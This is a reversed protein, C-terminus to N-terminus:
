PSRRSPPCLLFSVSKSVEKQPVPPDQCQGLDSEPCQWGWIWVPVLWAGPSNWWSPCHPRQCLSQLKSALCACSSGNWPRSTPLRVRFQLEGERVFHSWWGGTAGLHWDPLILIMLSVERLDLHRPRVRLFKSEVHPPPSPLYPPIVYSAIQTRLFAEWSVAPRPSRHQHGRLDAFSSCGQEHLSFPRGRTGPLKTLSCCLVGSWLMQDKNLWPLVQSSRSCMRLSWLSRWGRQWPLPRSRFLPLGVHASFRCGPLRCTPLDLQKSLLQIFGLTKAQLWGVEEVSPCSVQEWQGGRYFQPCLTVRSVWLMTPPGVRFRCFALSLSVCLELGKRETFAMGKGILNSQLCGSTTKGGFFPKRQKKM